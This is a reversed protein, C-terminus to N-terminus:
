FVKVFKKRDNKLGPAKDNFLDYCCKYNLKATLAGSFYTKSICVRIDFKWGLGINATITMLVNM